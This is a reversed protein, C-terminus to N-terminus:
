KQFNSGLYIRLSLWQTSFLNKIKKTHKRRKLFGKEIIVQGTVNNKTEAAEQAELYSMTGRVWIIVKYKPKDIFHSKSLGNVASPFVWWDSSGFHDTDKCIPRCNFVGSIQIFGLRDFLCIIGESTLLKPLHSILLLNSLSDHGGRGLHVTDNIGVSLVPLHPAISWPVDWRKLPSHRRKFHSLIMKWQVTEM